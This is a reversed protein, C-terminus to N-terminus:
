NVIITKTLTNGVRDKVTVPISDWKSVGTLTAQYYYVHGKVSKQLVPDTFQSYNWAADEATARNTVDMTVGEPLVTADIDLFDNALVRLHYENGQQEITFFDFLPMPPLKVVPAVEVPPPTNIVPNVVTAPTSGFYVPQKEVIPTQIVPVYNTQPPQIPTQAVIPPILIDHIKDITPQPVSFAQLLSLFAIISVLSM